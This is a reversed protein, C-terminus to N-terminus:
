QDEDKKEKKEIVHQEVRIEKRGDPYVKVSSKTGSEKPMGKEMEELLADADAGKYTETRTKGNETTLIILTTVGNEQTVKIEKRIEQQKETQAQANTHFFISFMLIALTTYKM